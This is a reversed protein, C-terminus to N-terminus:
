NPKEVILVGPIRNKLICYIITGDVELSTVGKM